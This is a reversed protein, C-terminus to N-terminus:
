IPVNLGALGPLHRLGLGAYALWFLFRASNLMAPQQCAACGLPM